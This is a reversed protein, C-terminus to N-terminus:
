VAGVRKALYETGVLEACTLMSTLTVGLAGHVNLNQGTLYLNSIRTRNPIVTVLPQNYNKMLGYASGDPIGTYDRYTLPTTVYIKEINRNIEPYYRGVFSLMQTAKQKKFEEYNEGRNGVSTEEWEKLESMYMPALLCIVETYKENEASPQMTVLSCNIRTDEPNLTNYWVNDKEYLFLNRNQYATSEKKQILYVSLLGYSNPLGALRSLYAKRILPTKEVMQMTVSPHLSSIVYKAQLLEEDNVEVSEIGNGSLYMRTVKANMRVTGGNNRIVDVLADVVQMSGDVFRYAGRLYSDTIMAHHYFTSTSQEGGYLLAPSSLVQQLTKDQTIGEITEWASISFHELGGTSFRGNRLQEIDITHGIGRLLSTYKRISEREKPFREILNAAFREHGMAYEYEQGQYRVIDFSNEDMRKLNLRDQIGFYRFYQRLIEGEDMSGIYHIGTDLLRGNRKFSQFCGGPLANKELVCVNYGEKSLTAGCALGGLGSGIIIVDYKSM